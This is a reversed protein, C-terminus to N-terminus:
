KGVKIYGSEDNKSGTFSNRLTVCCEFLLVNHRRNVADDVGFRRSCTLIVYNSCYANLLLRTLLLPLLELKGTVSSGWFKGFSLQIKKSGSPPDWFAVRTTRTRMTRTIRERFIGLAKNIRPPPCHFKAYM